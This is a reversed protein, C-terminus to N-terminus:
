PKVVHWANDVGDGRKEGPKEGSFRYVPKGKYAWMRIGDDRQIVTWSGESRAKSTALLPAWKNLCAGNCNSKGAADKDSFYLPLGIDTTYAGGTVKVPPGEAHVSAAFAGALMAFLIRTM